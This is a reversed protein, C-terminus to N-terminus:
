VGIYRDVYGAGCAQGLEGWGWLREGEELGRRVFKEFTM